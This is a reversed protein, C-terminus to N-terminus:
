MNNRGRRAVLGRMIRDFLVISLQRAAEQLKKEEELQPLGLMKLWERLDEEIVELRARDREKQKQEWQEQQQRSSQMEKYIWWACLGVCPLFAFALLLLMSSSDLYYGM